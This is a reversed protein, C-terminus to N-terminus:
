IEALREKIAGLRRLRSGDPTIYLTKEQRYLVQGPDAHPRKRVHKRRTYDVPVMSSSQASSYFVALEAGDLLDELPPDTKGCFLIVHSGSVQKTHFWIDDPRAQRFTLSQNEERNRGVWLRYGHTSIFQRYHSKERPDSTAHATDKLRSLREAVEEATLQETESRELEAQWRLLIPQAQEILRQAAQQRSKAKKYRRYAADAMEHPAKGDELRLEIQHEPNQFSPVTIIEPIDSAFRHQHALWLDGLDRDHSGDDEIWVLWEALQQEQHQIRDRLFHLYQSRQSDRLLRIEKATYIRDLEADLDQVPRVEVEPLPYVWLDEEGDPKNLVYGGFTGHEYDACLADFFSPGIQDLRHRALPPLDRRQRSQCPDPLPPPAQYPHGPFVTRGPQSPSIRKLADIVKGTPDTLILNTLHGSLEVILTRYRFEGLDGDQELDFHVIREWPVAHVGVIKAPLLGDFFAPRSKSKSRPGRRGFTTRHMRALGPILVVLFDASAFDAGSRGFLRVRGADYEAHTWTSGVVSQWGVTLQKLVLADFPM